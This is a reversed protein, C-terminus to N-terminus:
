RIRQSHVTPHLHALQKSSFTPPFSLLWFLLVERSAIQPHLVQYLPEDDVLGLSPPVGDM